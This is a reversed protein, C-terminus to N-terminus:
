LAVSGILAERGIDFFFGRLNGAYSGGSSLQIIDFRLTGDNNETITVQVRPKRAGISDDNIVFIMSSM